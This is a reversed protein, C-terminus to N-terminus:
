PEKRIVAKIPRMIVTKNTMGNVRDHPIVRSINKMIIIIAARIEMVLAGIFSYVASGLFKFFM